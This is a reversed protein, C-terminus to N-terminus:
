SKEECNVERMMSRSLNISSDLVHGLGSPLVAARLIEVGFGFYFSM